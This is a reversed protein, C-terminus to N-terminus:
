RSRAAVGCRRSHARPTSRISDRRTFRRPVARWEDAGGLTGWRAGQGTHSIDAEALDADAQYASVRGDAIRAIGRNTGVLLGGDGDDVFARVVNGPLGADTTYATFRGDRLASRAAARPALGCREPRTKSCAGSSTPPSDTELRTSPSDAGRLPSCARRGLYRDLSTGARDELLSTVFSNGIGTTNSPNFLPSASATSAHWAKM